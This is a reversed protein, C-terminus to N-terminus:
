ALLYRMMFKLGERNMLGALMQYHVKTRRQTNLWCADWIMLKLRQRHKLGALIEDHVKTWTQTNLGCDHGAVINEWPNVVCMLWKNQCMAVTLKLHVWVRSLFAIWEKNMRELHITSVSNVAYWLRIKVLIFLLVRDYTWNMVIVGAITVTTCSEASVAVAQIKMWTKRTSYLRGALEPWHKFKKGILFRFWSCVLTSTVANYHSM